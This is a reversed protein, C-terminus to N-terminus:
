RRPKASPPAGTSNLSSAEALRHGPALSAVAGTTVGQGYPAVPEAAMALGREHPAEDQAPLVAASVYFGRQRLEQPTPLRGSADRFLFLCQM